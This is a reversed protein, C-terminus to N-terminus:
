LQGTKLHGRSAPKPHGGLYSDADAEQAQEELRTGGPMAGGFEKWIVIGKGFPAPLHGHVHHTFEHCVLFNLEVLFLVMRLLDVMDPHTVDIALLKLIPQTLSLTGALQMLLKAMEVSVIIFACGEHQFAFAPEPSDVYDFHFTPCAVGDTVNANAQNLGTTFASRLLLLFSRFSPELQDLSAPYTGPLEGSDSLETLVAEPGPM